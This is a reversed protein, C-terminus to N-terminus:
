ALNSTRTFALVHLKKKLFDYEVEVLWKHHGSFYIEEVQGDERWFSEV